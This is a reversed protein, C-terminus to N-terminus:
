SDDLSGPNKSRSSKKRESLSKTAAILYAMSGVLGVAFGLLALWSTGWRRDLWTGGIGPACMMLAAALIRGAWEFGRALADGPDESM